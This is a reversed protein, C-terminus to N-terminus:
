EDDRGEGAPDPTWLLVWLSRDTLGNTSRHFSVMKIEPDLHRRLADMWGPDAVVFWTRKPRERFWQFENEDLGELKVLDYVVGRRTYLPTFVYGTHIGEAPRLIQYYPRATDGLYYAAMAPVAAAIRDGDRIENLIVDEYAARFNSRWGHQVNENYYAACQFFMQTLVLGPLLVALVPNGSSRIIRAVFVAALLTIAPLIVIAYRPWAPMQLSLAALAMTPIFATLGFFVAARERRRAMVLFGGVSLVVLPWTARWGIAAYTKIPDSIATGFSYRGTSLRHLIEPLMSGAKALAALVVLSLVLGYVWDIRAPRAASGPTATGAPVAPAVMGRPMEWAWLGRCLLLVFPYAVLTFGLFTAVPHVFVGVGVLVWALIWRVKGNRELGEFHLWLLLTALLMLLSYGRANQSWYLHWPSLALFAAALLGELKGFSRRVMAYLVPIALVGFVMPFFRLAFHSVGMLHIAGRAVMYSLPYEPYPYLPDTLAYADRITYVEDDWFSWVTLKHARFAIGILVILLLVALATWERQLGPM